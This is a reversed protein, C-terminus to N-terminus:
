MNENNVIGFFREFFQKLREIVSAKKSAYQNNPAFPNLPPLLKTIATGTESIFGDRFANKVFKETEEKNLNEDAIIRNLEEKQKQSVFKQWDDNVSTAPTLSAVFHVILDKKNRLEMSSDIAKSITIVIEKDQLHGEHYKRILELIYDINIEVQKILEMEFVIDDNVNESDGKNKGRFENYLNIYMSHYDQVDRENLIENGAFEDFSSLINKIKLIGGYLKIFDKQAQEGLRVGLGEGYPSPLIPYKQLLEAVLEEYGKIVKGNETEYGNYYEKYSKLLVIGGAEKDGFLAISENTAKELNRFCVINGFTKISNLIRNTRSFAQLLGHLRLNKDVWLTNLTTADFGTLFMNVVILL